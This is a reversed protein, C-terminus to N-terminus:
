LFSAFAYAQWENWGLLRALLAVSVWYPQFHRSSDSTPIFPNVPHIPDAILAKLVALHQSIDRSSQDLFHGTAAQAAIAGYFVLGCIWFLATPGLRLKLAPRAAGGVPAEAIAPM